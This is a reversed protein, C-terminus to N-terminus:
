QHKFCKRPKKGSGLAFIPCGGVECVPAKKTKKKKEQKQQNQQMTKHPSFEGTGRKNHCELCTCRGNSVDFRLDPRAAKTEIHDGCLEGSDSEASIGCYTCTLNDRALVAEHWAVTAKHLQNESLFPRCDECVILNESQKKCILCNNM